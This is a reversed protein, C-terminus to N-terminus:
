ILNALSHSHNFLAIILGGIAIWSIINSWALVQLINRLQMLKLKDSVILEMLKSLRDKDKCISNVIKDIMEEHHELRYAVALIPNKAIKAEKLNVIKEKEM